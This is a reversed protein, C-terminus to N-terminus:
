TTLSYTYDGSREVSVVTGDVTVPIGALHPQTRKGKPGEIEIQDESVTLKAASPLQIPLKGVRSM